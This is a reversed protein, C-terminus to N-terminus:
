PRASSASADGTARDLATVALNWEYVSQLVRGRLTFYALYADALDRASAAGVSEAQLVSAVWGRASKEGQEAAVLRARAEVARNYSDRVAFEVAAIAGAQLAGGREEEARARAVRAGQMGPEVSWRLVAALEARTTNFPDNALASPPDDVGQARAVSVGATVALDPWWRAEELETRHGLASVGHSAARLEPSSTQARQWHENVDGLDREIPALAVDMVEADRDGVLARLGELASMEKERTESRRIAVETELSEVRLRDQVTVDPDGAELRVVLAQKGKAIQEAGDELMLGLERALEIGFYIRTTEVALDGRVGDAVAASMQAADTTGLVAADIKGFTYLPQVVDLRAGAFVGKFDLSVDNPSTRTCAADVCRIDPSPALFSILQARPWRAGRAEEVQALAARHAAISARAVPNARARAIADSLTLRRPAALALESLLLTACFAAFASKMEHIEAAEEPAHSSITSASDYM